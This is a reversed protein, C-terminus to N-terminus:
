RGICVKVKTFMRSIDEFKYISNVDSISYVTSFNIHKPCLTQRCFICLLKRFCKPRRSFIKFCLKLYEYQVLCLSISVCWESMCFCAKYPFHSLYCLYKTYLSVCFNEFVNCNIHPPPIKIRIKPFKYKVFHLSILM